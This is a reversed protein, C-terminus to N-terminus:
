FAFFLFLFLFVFLLLLFFEWSLLAQLVHSCMVKETYWKSSCIALFIRSPYVLCQELHNSKQFLVPTLGLPPFDEKVDHVSKYPEMKEKVM